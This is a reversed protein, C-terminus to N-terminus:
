LHLKLADLDAADSDAHMFFYSHLKHLPLDPVFLASIRRILHKSFTGYSVCNFRIVCLLNHVSVLSRVHMLAGRQGRSAQDGDAAATKGSLQEERLADKTFLRRHIFIRELPNM